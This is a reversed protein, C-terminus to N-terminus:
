VFINSVRTDAGMNGLCTFVNLVACEIVVIILSFHLM